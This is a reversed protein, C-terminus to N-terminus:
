EAAVVETQIPEPTSSLDRTRVNIQRAVARGVFRADIARDWWHGSDDRMRDIRLHMQELAGLLGGWLSVKELLALDARALRHDEEDIWLVGGLRDLVREFLKNSGSGTSGPQFEVRLCPRGDIHERATVTFEYRSLLETTFYADLQRSRDPRERNAPGERPPSGFRKMERENEKDTPPHGNIELLEVEHEGNRVTVRLLLEERKTLRGQANFEETSNTRYFVYAGGPQNSASHATHEVLQRIVEAAPPLDNTSTDPSAPTAALTSAALSLFAIVRRVHM